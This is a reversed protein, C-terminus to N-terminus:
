MADARRVDDADRRRVLRVAEGAEGVAALRRYMEGRGADVDQARDRLPRGDEGVGELGVEAVPGLAEATAWLRADAGKGPLPGGLKGLGGGGAHCVGGR